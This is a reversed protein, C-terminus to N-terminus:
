VLLIDDCIFNSFRGISKLNTPFIFKSKKLDYTKVCFKRAIRRYRMEHVYYDDIETPLVLKQPDHEVGMKGYEFPDDNM